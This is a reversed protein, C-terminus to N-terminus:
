TITFLRKKREAKSLEVVYQGLQGFEISWQDGIGESYLNLFGNPTPYEIHVDPHLAAFLFCSITQMKSGTPALLIRHDVALNWYLQELMIVAERYDLTSASM